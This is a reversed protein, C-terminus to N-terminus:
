IIYIYIKLVNLNMVVYVVVFVVVFIYYKVFFEIIEFLRIRLWIIVM